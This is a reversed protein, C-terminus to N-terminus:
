VYIVERLVYPKINRKLLNINHLEVKEGLLDELEKKLRIYSVLKEEKFEVLLDMHGGEVRTGRSYSGFLGIKMLGLEERYRNLEKRISVIIKDTKTYNM